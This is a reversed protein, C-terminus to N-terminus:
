PSVRALYMINFPCGSIPRFRSTSRSRFCAVWTWPASAVPPHAWGSRHPAPVPHGTILGVLIYQIPWQKSISTILSRHTPSFVICPITCFSLPLSHTRSPVFPLSPADHTARGAKKKKKKKADMITRRQYLVMRLVEDLTIALKRRAIQTHHNDKSDLAGRTSVLTANHGFPVSLPHQSVQPQPPGCASLGHDMITKTQRQRVKPIKYM